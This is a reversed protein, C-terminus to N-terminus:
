MQSHRGLFLNSDTPSLLKYMVAYLIFSASIETPYLYVGRSVSM